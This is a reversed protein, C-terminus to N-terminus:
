EETSQYEKLYIEFVTGSGMNSRVIIKGGNKEVMHKVIALGMGQRDSGKNIHSFPKFLNKMEKELDIGPGNEHIQIIKYGNRIKSSLQFKLDQEPDRFRLAYRIINRIINYLYPKPFRLLQWELSDFGLSARADQLKEQMDGVVQEVVQLLDIKEINHRSIDEQIEILQVLGQLTNDLRDLYTQCGKMIKEKKAEEVQTLLEFSLKLGAVPSRLDHAVAHVFEDLYRNIQFLKQNKNNLEDRQLKQDHIDTCTGFWRIIKGEKDRLPVARGIFWRYAGDHRRFRYEIHYPDGSTLCKRWVKRTREVDDPHLTLKWQGKLSQNLGIGTYEYWRRNYYTHRGEPGTTWVLQPIAETIQQLEKAKQEMKDVLIKQEHIDIASGLYKVVEGKEIKLPVARSMFWRYHGDHRLLRYEMEFPTGSQQFERLKEQCLKLDDPHVLKELGLEMLEALELGSYEAARKNIFDNKGNLSSTWVIEPMSNALLVFEQIHKAERNSHIQDTIDRAFHTAGIIIGSENRICTYNVEFYKQVGQENVLNFSTQFEEGELVKKWLKEAAQLSEEDPSIIDQLSLGVKVENLYILSYVKKFASNCAVFCLDKNIAGILDPSSELIGTLWSVYNQLQKQDQLHLSSLRSIEKESTMEMELGPEM